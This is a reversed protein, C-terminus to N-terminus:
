DNFKEKCGCVRFPITSILWRCIDDTHKNKPHKCKQCTVSGEIINKWCRDCYCCGTFMDHAVWGGPLLSDVGDVIRHGFGLDGRAGEFHSQLIESPFHVAACGDCSFKVTVSM